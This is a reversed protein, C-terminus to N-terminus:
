MGTVQSQTYGNSRRIGAQPPLSRHEFRIVIEATVRQGHPRIEEGTSGTRREISHRGPQQRLLRV